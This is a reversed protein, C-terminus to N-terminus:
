QYLHSQTIYGLVADPVLYQINDGRSIAQRLDTSSINLEPLEIFSVHGSREQVLQELSCTKFKLDSNISHNSSQCPFGNRNIVAINAKDLIDQPKYWNSFGNWADAGMVWILSRDPYQTRLLSVTVATYSVRESSLEIDSIEVDKLNTIAHELMAMRQQGTALPQPRHPPINNPLLIVKEVGKNQLGVALRLHGVHIPDFTGGLIAISEM